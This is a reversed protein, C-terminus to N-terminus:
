PVTVEMDYGTVDACSSSITKNELDAYLCYSICSTTSNDCGSPLAEYLYQKAPSSLPDRPISSMYTKTGGPNKFACDSGTIITLQGNSPCGSTVTSKLPYYFQDSYYAELASQIFSLDSQRKSDRADQLVKTYSVLGIVILTAIISLVVLLEVLTFGINPTRHEYNTPPM